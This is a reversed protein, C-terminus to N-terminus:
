QCRCPADSRARVCARAVSRPPGGLQLPQVHTRDPAELHVGGLWPRALQRNALDRLTTVIRAAAFSAFEACTVYRVRPEVGGRENSFHM